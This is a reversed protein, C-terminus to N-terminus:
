AHTLEERSTIEFVPLEKQVLQIYVAQNPFRPLVRQALETDSVDADVVQGAHVAVYQGFHSELLQPKLKEFANREREFAEMYAKRQVQYKQKVLADYEAYPLIVLLPKGDEEIVLPEGAAKVREIEATYGASAEKVVRMSM